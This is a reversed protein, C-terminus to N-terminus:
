SLGFGLNHDSAIRTLRNYKATREGRAPAGSKIQGTGAGVALDAIFTDMTEGSRHSVMCQMGCEYATRIAAFTESVTGIQNPKILAANSWGEEHGRRIRDADTVYLDDGVIQLRDGLAATLARWGPLDEESPGDEISRLPYTDALEVYLEVLQDSTLSRGRLRYRGDSFFGNAAPDLALRVPGTEPDWGADQIAQLLLEIAQREDDLPPAFGGEDGVGVTGFRRHVRRGLAHYIEAGADVSERASTMGVPAIMFEQFALSNTAHSGGNLVNFHPVPLRPSTGLEEAVWSFLEQGHAHALARACAMSTAVISNAGMRAYGPTGDLTGLAEDVDEITRWPRGVITDAIEGRLAALARTVGRGGHATSDEDRLEHAEGRGTSAGSPSSASCPTGEAPVLTVEVTPYGRSDLIERALMREILVPESDPRSTM